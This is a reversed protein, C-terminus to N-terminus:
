SFRVKIPRGARGTYIVHKWEGPPPNLLAERVREAACAEKYDELLMYHGGHWKCWVRARKLPEETMPDKGIGTVIEVHTGPNPCGPKCCYPNLMLVPLRM